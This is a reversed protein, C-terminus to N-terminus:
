FEPFNGIKQIGRIVINGLYGSMGCGPNCFKCYTTVRKNRKVSTGKPVTLTAQEDYNADSSVSEPMKVHVLTALIVNYLKQLLSSNPFLIVIRFAKLSMKQTRGRLILNVLHNEWICSIIM